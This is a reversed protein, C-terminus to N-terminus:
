GKKVADEIGITAMESWTDEVSHGLLILDRLEGSRDRVHNRLLAEAQFGLNQFMAVAPTQDAVVEVFIKALGLRIADLLGRRALARGCGKRRRTPDVVLRLEGVHSSWGVGPIVAVYGVVSGDDEIAVARHARTEHAWSNVTAPDLVDEKFFTRDGEPIRQFFSRLATADAPEIPRIEM